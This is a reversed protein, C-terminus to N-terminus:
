GSIVFKHLKEVARRRITYIANPTRDLYLAIESNDYNGLQMEVLARQPKSLLRLGARITLLLDAKEFRSMAGDDPLVEALLPGDPSDDSPGDLSLHDGRRRFSPKNCESRVVNEVFKFLWASLDCDYPYRWLKKWFIISCVQTLDKVLEDFREGALNCHRAAHWIVMKRIQSRLRKWTEEQKALLADVIPGERVLYDIVLDVYSDPIGTRPNVPGGTPIRDQTANGQIIKQMRLAHQEIHNGERVIGAHCQLRSLCQAFLPIRANM